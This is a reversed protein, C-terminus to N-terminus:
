ISSKQPIFVTPFPGKSWLSEVKFPPFITPRPGFLRQITSRTSFIKTAFSPRTTVSKYIYISMSQGSPWKVEKFSCIFFARWPSLNHQVIKEEFSRKFALSDWTTAMLKPFLCKFDLFIVITIYLYKLFHKLYKKKPLLYKLFHKFHINKPLLPERVAIAGFPRPRFISQDRM